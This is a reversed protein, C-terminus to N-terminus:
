LHSFNSKQFTSLHSQPFSLTRVSLKKSVQPEEWEGLLQSLLERNSQEHINSAEKSEGPHKRMWSTFGKKKKDGEKGDDEEDMSMQYLDADVRMGEELEEEEEEEEQNKKSKYNDFLWQNAQGGRRKNHSKRLKGGAFGIENALIAVEGLLLVKQMM